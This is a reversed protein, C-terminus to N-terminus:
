PKKSSKKDRKKSSELSVGVKSNDFATTMQRLFEDFGKQDNEKAKQRVKLINSISKEQDTEIINGTLIMRLLTTNQRLAKELDRAGDDGIQNDGLDLSLLATNQSLAHALYSAGLDELENNNLDLSQLTKNKSMAKAIKGVAEYTEYGTMTGELSLRGLGTNQALADALYSAGLSCITNKSLDLVQLTKNQSLGKAIKGVAEYAEFGTMTGELSLRGLGTNQALADALYSAGLRDITNKSLDLVQLTKNQSLGKAIKGVAEYAEFGTMTGELNLSRLGTNQALADALYSAGLRDITNKSLDLVQLTKNQSLGKAIKGVAEYAEFGTMTGELNLSRLGTNQALADALYSAGLRDITNKSLDLVQLTKNQSLGKAIKGVAEYAEFGTMTGELNLSRLGTNQALADALYSAGLRDITNNSLNLGQLTKNKSLAKCLRGIQEYGMQANSLNLVIGCSNDEISQILKEVENKSFM